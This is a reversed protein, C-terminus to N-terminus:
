DAPCTRAVAELCPWHRRSAASRGRRWWQCGLAGAAALGAKRDPMDSESYLRMVTSRATGSIQVGVRQPLNPRIALIDIWRTTMPAPFRLVGTEIHLQQGYAKYSGGAARLEGTLRPALGNESQDQLELSGTLRTILGRGRVQFNSGM